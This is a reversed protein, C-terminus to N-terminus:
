EEEGPAAETTAASPVDELAELLLNALARFAGEGGPVDLIIDAARRVAPQANAPCASLGALEMAPLDNVDDGIYAVEAPDVNLWDCMNRSRKGKPGAGVDIAHVGLREARRRVLGTDHAASLWGILVGAKILRKTGLGDHHHFARAEDGQMTLFVRGDTLVGDVDTIVARIPRQGLAQGLRLAAYGRVSPHTPPLGRAIAGALEVDEETEVRIREIPAAPAPARQASFAHHLTSPTLFPLRPDIDIAAAVDDVPDLSRLRGPAGLSAADGAFAIEEREVGAGLLARLSWLPLPLGLLRRKADPPAPPRIVARISRRRAQM